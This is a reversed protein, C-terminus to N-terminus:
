KHPKLQFDAEMSVTLHFPGEKGPEFTAPVVLFVKGEPLLDFRLTTTLSTAHMPVFSTEQSLERRGDNFKSDRERDCTVVYFGIMCGVSDARAMAKWRDEPRSLTIKAELPQPIDQLVIQFAPNRKWEPHLHCGHATKDPAWAGTVTRSHGQNLEQMMLQTESFLQLTFEGERGPLKMAPHVMLGEKLWDPPVRLLTTAVKADTYYSSLSFEEATIDLKRKPPERPEDGTGGAGGKAESAATDGLPRRLSSEKSPLPEGLANTRVQGPRRRKPNDPPPPQVRTVTLGVRNKTGDSKDDRGAHRDTRTLVLKLTSKKKTEVGPPFTIWFQPNLCFSPNARGDVRRPGGASERIWASSLEIGFPDPVADVVLESESFIRLSFSLEMGRQMTHPVIVYSYKPDFEM